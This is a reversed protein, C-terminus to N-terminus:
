GLQMWTVLRPKVGLPAQIARMYNKKIYSDISKKLENFQEQNISLYRPESKNCQIAKWIEYTQDMINKELDLLYWRYMGDGDSWSGDARKIPLEYCFFYGKRTSALKGSYIKRPQSLVSDEYGPNDALLDQYALAIEEDASPTGEYQSNFDKM